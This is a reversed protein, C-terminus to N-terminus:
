AVEEAIVAHTFHDVEELTKGRANQIRDFRKNFQNTAFDVFESEQLGFPVPDYQAFTESIVGLALPLMENMTNQVLDWLSPDKAMLRSLLYVGYAIHRAEDQKLLAVGRRTGPLIGHRDLVSFYSYYGTEALMGEVIMNYITSARAQAAPSPDTRLAHLAHPLASEIIGAYSPPLFRSLDHSEEAVEDIFRHFFDVHKAEEWLFTTLFMEEELRGEQAIVNILPLLDITVAEEGAQFLSTLRLLLDKEEDKLRLWDKHDQTFDIDSPNWVGLQKAKEFLRMPPTDRRLGRSTTTFIRATM